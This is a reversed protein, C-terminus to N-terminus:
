ACQRIPRTLTSVVPAAPGIPIRGSMPLISILKWMMTSKPLFLCRVSRPIAVIARILRHSVCWGTCARRPAFGVSLTNVKLFFRQVRSVPWKALLVNRSLPKLARKMAGACICVCCCKRGIRRKPEAPVPRFIWFPMIPIWKVRFCGAFNWSKWSRPSSSWKPNLIRWLAPM